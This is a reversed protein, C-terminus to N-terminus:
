RQWICTALNMGNADPVGYWYMILGGNSIAEEHARRDAEYLSLDESGKNRKSRFVVCYWERDTSLPLHISAWNFAQPYALSAYASSSPRIFHLSHHLSLSAPDISPLRTPLSPPVLTEAPDFTAAPPPQPVSDPLPSLLPPLYLIPSTPIEVASNPPLHHHHEFIPHSLPLSPEQPLISNDLPKPAAQRGREPQSLVRFEADSHTRVINLM